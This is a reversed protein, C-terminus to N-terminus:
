VRGEDAPQHSKRPPPCIGRLDVGSRRFHRQVAGPQLQMQRAPKEPPPSIVLGSYADMFIVQPMKKFPLGKLQELCDNGNVAVFCFDLDEFRKIKETISNRNVAKDDVLGIRTGKNM